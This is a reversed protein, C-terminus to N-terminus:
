SWWSTPAFLGPNVATARRKDDRAPRLFEGPAVWGASPARRATAPGRGLLRVASPTWRPGCVVLLFLCARQGTGRSRHCSEAVVLADCRGLALRSGNASFANSRRYGRGHVQGRERSSGIEVFAVDRSRGASAPARHLHDASALAEVQGRAGPPRSSIQPTMSQSPRRPCGRGARDGARRIRPRPICGNLHVSMSVRYGRGYGGSAAITATSETLIASLLVRSRVM